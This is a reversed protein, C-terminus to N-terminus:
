SQIRNRLLFIWKYIWRINLLLLQSFNVMTLLWTIKNLKLSTRTKFSSFWYIIISEWHAWILISIVDILVKVWFIFSFLKISKLIRWILFSIFFSLHYFHSLFIIRYVTLRLTPYVLINFIWFHYLLIKITLHIIHILIFYFFVCNLLEWIWFRYIFGYSVIYTGSQWLKIISLNSM